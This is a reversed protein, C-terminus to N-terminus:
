VAHPALAHQLQWLAKAAYVKALHAPTSTEELPPCLVSEGCSLGKRAVDAHAVICLFCDGGNADLHDNAVVTNVYM